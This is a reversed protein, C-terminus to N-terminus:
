RPPNLFQRTIPKGRILAHVANLTDTYACLEAATAVAVVVPMQSQVPPLALGRSVGSDKSNKKFGEM